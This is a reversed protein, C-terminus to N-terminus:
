AALTIIMQSHSPAIVCFIATARFVLPLPCEQLIIACPATQKDTARTEGKKTKTQARDAAAETEDILVTDIM